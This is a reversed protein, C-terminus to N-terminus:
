NNDLARKDKVARYKNDYTHPGSPDHITDPKKRHKSKGIYTSSM